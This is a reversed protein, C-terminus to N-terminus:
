ETDQALVDNVFDSLAQETPMLDPHDRLVAAEIERVSRRGDCYGLVVRRAVGRDGLRPVHEPHSKTAQGADIVVSELTSHSIRAGSAPHAVSWAVLGEEPRMAVRAEIDDGKALAIPKAVPLFAQARDIRDEAGPANTMRVGAGLHCDFWGALGHLHGKRSATFRARWSFFDRSETRLDIEELRSPAALLEERGLEAAHKSNLEQDTLWHLAEPVHPQSWRTMRQHMAPSEAIGLYLTLGEPVLRGNPALFRHRADRLVSLIRYDVGFYGVHDCVIVDFREDIRLQHSAGRLVQTEANSGARRYTERALEAAGTSEIGVMRGAGAELGLLGLVGVGCGLDLVSDGPCIVGQLAERYTRTRRFDSVYAWHERLM